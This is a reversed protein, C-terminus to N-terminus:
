LARAARRADLIAEHITRPAVCDGIRAVAGTIQDTPLRFGCDVLASCLVTRREGSFRDELVVSGPGVARLLSRKEIWVGRQALRVNAPALDGTRSLENGAIQDQTILIAREGLEEALAVAIPGGIPDFLAITGDPLAVAESRVDVVDLVVAGDAIEYERLGPRGGTAQVLVEGDSPAAETALEVAVGAVECERVLWEVLPRVHPQLRAVGGATASREAIRVRHGRRTAVRAAEM